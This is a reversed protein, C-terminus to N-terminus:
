LATEKTARAVQRTEARSQRAADEWARRYLDDVETRELGAQQASTVAQNLAERVDAAARKIAPRATAPQVEMGIGKRAVVLGDRELEEYARKVTNPNVLFRLATERISPILDGPRYLGRAIGSRIMQAIQLFVPNPSSPDVRM